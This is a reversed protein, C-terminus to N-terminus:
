LYYYCLRWLKIQSTNSDTKSHSNEYKIEMLMSM